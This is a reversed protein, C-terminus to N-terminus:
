KCRNLKMWGLAVPAASRDLLNPRDAIWKGLQCSQIIADDETPETATRDSLFKRTCSGVEIKSSSIENRAEVGGVLGKLYGMCRDNKGLDNMLTDQHNLIQCMVICADSLDGATIVNQASSCLPLLVAALSSCLNATKM